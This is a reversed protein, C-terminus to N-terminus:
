SLKGYNDATMRIDCFYDRVRQNRPFIIYGAHHDDGQQSLIDGCFVAIRVIRKGIM